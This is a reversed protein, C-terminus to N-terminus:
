RPLTSKAALIRAVAADVQGAFAADARAREVLAAAMEPVVSPDASALVLDVGAEIAHVAREGPSWGRVQDAASLDDTMIVGDFGLDDRLLGVVAPSFAAPADPDIRDYVATSMMVFRAGAAIGAAFVQVDPSDPGVEDDVVDSATDTNQTVRGLGPFHKIVTEVGAARQGESFATASTTVSEATFGYNRAFYGIPANQAATERPVLDMVPALNLNIGAAALEAGWAEARDRLEPAPWEAQRTARPIESFGPGRLVQVLGGEQDTAVLMPEGRTTEASVLSTYREVLARTAEVGAESRGHLFVNGVHHETVAARSLEESGGGVNVGVMLLQGVKQELTWGALGDATGSPAPESSPSASPEPPPTTPPSPSASPPAATRSVGPTPSPEATPGSCATLATTACLAVVTLLSSRM